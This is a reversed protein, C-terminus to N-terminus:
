RSTALAEMRRLWDESLGSARAGRLLVELYAASPPADSALRRSRAGRYAIAAIPEGSDVPTLQVDFAEYLGSIAGERHDVLGRSAGPMQVALGEVFDGPAPALSAVAGRWARSVVDFSLRFGLLRARRAGAFSPLTYGHEAAWGAFAERDLSSGYVFWVFDASASAEHAKGLPLKM